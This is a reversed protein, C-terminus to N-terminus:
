FKNLKFKLIKLNYLNPSLPPGIVSIVLFTTTAGSFGSGSDWALAEYLRYQIM